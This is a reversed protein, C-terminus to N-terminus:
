NIEEFFDKGAGCVPCLWNAPLLEFSTGGPIDVSQDGTEPDYKFGCVTCIYKNMELPM